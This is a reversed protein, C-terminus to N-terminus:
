GAGGGGGGAGGGGGGSAGGGAGTSSSMASNVSAVAESFSAGFSEGSFGDGRGAGYFYWPLYYNQKEVPIIDGLAALHKKQMGLVVGYVFYPEIANLVSGPASTKFEQSTLYKKLSKWRKEQTRGDKNHHVIGLSSVLLILGGIGPILAWQYFFFALPIALLLLGGALYMGQNRGKFSEQDYFKYKEGETKVEKSWKGFFEQVKSKKKKFAEMSVISEHPNDGSDAGLEEFVFQVLMKEFPALDNDHELMFDKKLVWLHAPKWKEKGMFGKSLEIEERFELFGRRALDLMTGMVAAGSVSREAILYGVIAPPLDSPVEPSSSPVPPITPRGGYQRAIRVFWVVALILLIPMARSGTKMREKVLVSKERSRERRANAEHAWGSEEEIIEAVVYGYQEPADAFMEAPYLIRLEFFQKRPLNECTATVVGNESTASSGWLPGHAWQRVQWKESAVPPNVTIDLSGTSKRFDDGIFKYYLVAGDLHRIVADHVVYNISFTREERRARYYWRVEIEEEDSTVRFTGPEKNESLQYSQNNESVTFDSYSIGSGLPFTRYAYKYSGRFDYTRNETVLMSGGADLDAVISVNKMKYSKGAFADTAPLLVLLVVLSALLLLISYPMVSEPKFSVRNTKTSMKKRKPKLECREYEAIGTFVM